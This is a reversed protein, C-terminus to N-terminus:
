AERCPKGSVVGEVFHTLWALLADRLTTVAPPTFERDPWAVLLRADAGLVKPLVQVLRGEDLDDRVILMPLLAIGLGELAAARALGLDNSVFVGNVRAKGGDLMPWESTPLRAPTFNVLCRHRRLDARTRPTGQAKLYAPAAVAVRLDRAVRRTVVGPTELTSARIAIDFGDKVLDVLESTALVQVQVDPHKRVFGVLFQHFDRGFGPPVSVRVPGKPASGSEVRIANEALAVAELASRAHTVFREGADTLAISRTSRRLLRVGLKEELRSLRRSVTARPLQLAAAARTLSRSDVVHIFSALESTEPADDSM